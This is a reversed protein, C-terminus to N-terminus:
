WYGPDGVLRMWIWYIGLVFERNCFKKICCLGGFDIKFGFSRLGLEYDCKYNNRMSNVSKWDFLIVKMEDCFFYRIVLYEDHNIEWKVDENVSVEDREIESIWICM